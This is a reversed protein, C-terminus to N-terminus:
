NMVENDCCPRDVLGVQKKCSGLAEFEWGRGPFLSISVYNCICM